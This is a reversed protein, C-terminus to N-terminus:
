IGGQALTLVGLAMYNHLVDKRTYVMETHVLAISQFRDNVAHQTHSTVAETHQTIDGIDLSPVFIATHGDDWYFVSRTWRSALHTYNVPKTVTKTWTETGLSFRSHLAWALAPSAM